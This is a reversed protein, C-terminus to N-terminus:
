PCPATEKYRVNKEIKTMALVGTICVLCPIAGYLIAALYNNSFACATGGVVFFPIPFAFAAKILSV